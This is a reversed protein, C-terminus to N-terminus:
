VIGLAALERSVWDLLSDHASAEGQDDGMRQHRALGANFSAVDMATRLNYAAMEAANMAGAKNVPKPVRFGFARVVQHEVPEGDPVDETVTEVEHGIFLEVSDGLDLAVLKGDKWTSKNPDIAAPDAPIATKNLSLKSM